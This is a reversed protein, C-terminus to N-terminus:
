VAPAVSTVHAIARDVQQLLDHNLRAETESMTDKGKPQSMRTAIQRELEERHEINRLRSNVARREESRHYDRADNEMWEGEKKRDARENQKARKKEHIQDVIHTQIEHQKQRLKEHAALEAAREVAAKETHEKSARAAIKEAAEKAGALRGNTLTELQHHRKAEAHEAIEKAARKREDALRAYDRLSQEERQSQKQASEERLKSSLASEELAQLAVQRRFQMREQARQRDRADDAAEQQMIEEIEKKARTKTEEKLARDKEIQRIREKNVGEAKERAAVAKELDEQEKSRNKAVVENYHQLDAERERARKLKADEVQLDLDARIKQQKWLEQAKKKSADRVHLDAALKDLTAWNVGSQVDPSAAVVGGSYAADGVGGRASLSGAQALSGQLPASGGSNSSGRASGILVRRPQNRAGRPLTSANTYTSVSCVSMSDVDGERGDKGEAGGARAQRQLRQELQAVNSETMSAGSGVSSDVERRIRSSALSLQDFDTPAESGLRDRLKQIFEDKGAERQRLLELKERRGSTL